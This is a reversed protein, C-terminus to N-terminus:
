PGAKGRASARGVKRGSLREERVDFLSRERPGCRLDERLVCCVACGQGRAAYLDGCREACRVQGGLVAYLPWPWPPRAM